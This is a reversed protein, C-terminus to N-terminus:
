MKKEPYLYYNSMFVFKYSTLSPFGSHNILRRVTTYLAFQNGRLLLAPNLLGHEAAGQSASAAAHLAAAAALVVGAEWLGSQTSEAVPEGRASTLTGPDNALHFGLSCQNDYCGCFLESIIECDDTVTTHIHTHTHRHACGVVWWKHCSECGWRSTTVAFHRCSEEEPSHPRNKCNGAPFPMGRRTLGVLGVSRRWPLKM